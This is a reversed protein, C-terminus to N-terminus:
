QTINGCSYDQTASTQFTGNRLTMTVRVPQNQNCLIGLYPNTGTNYNTTVMGVRVSWTYTLYQKPLSVEQAWGECYMGGTVSSCDLLVPVPQNVTYECISGGAESRGLMKGSGSPCNPVGPPPTLDCSKPKVCAAYAQTVSLACLASLLLTIRRSM